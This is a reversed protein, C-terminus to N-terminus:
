QERRPLIWLADRHQGSSYVIRRGDRHVAPHRREAAAVTLPLATVAGSVADILVFRSTDRQRAVALLQRGGATWPLSRM